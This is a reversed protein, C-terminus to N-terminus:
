SRPRPRGPEEEVTYIETRNCTSLIVGAGVEEALRPLAEPLEERSFSVRERVALPATNHNLGTLLIHLAVEIFRLGCRPLHRVYPRGM